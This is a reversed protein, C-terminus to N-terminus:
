VSTMEVEEYATKKERERPLSPPKSESFFDGDEADPINSM